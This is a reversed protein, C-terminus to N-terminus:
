RRKPGVRGSKGPRSTTTSSRDTATTTTRDEPTMPTTSATGQATVTVTVIAAGGSPVTIGDLRALGDAVTVDHTTTVPTVVGGTGALTTVEVRASTADADLRLRLDVPQGAGILDPHSGILATVTGAADTGALVSLDTRAASARVISGTIDAYAEWVYWNATPTTGNPMLINDMTGPDYYCGDYSRGDYLAPWCASGAHDIGAAVFSSFYGITAGAQQINGPGGFENIHLEPTGLAPRQAIMARVADVHQTVSRPGLDCGGGCGGQLEHWAIVDFRLGNGAIYDLFTPMDLLAGPPPDFIGISPGVIKATPLVSRIADHAVQFQQLIRPTTAEMGPVVTRYWAAQDPENQIEWYDPVLGQALHWAVTQQIVARYLEWNEWPNMDIGYTNRTYTTWTASLVVDIAGGAARAAQFQAPNTADIRHYGLDVDAIRGPDTRSTLGMMVGRGVGTATGTVATADVAVCPHVTAGCVPDAPLTLTASGWVIGDPRGVGGIAIRYATGPTLHDVTTGTGTVTKMAVRQSDSARRVVVTWRDVGGPDVWELRVSGTGAPAATLTTVTDAGAATIGAVALAPVLLAVALVLRALIPLRHPPTHM